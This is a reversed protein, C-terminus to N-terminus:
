LKVGKWKKIKSTAPVIGAVGRHYIYIEDGNPNKVIIKGKRHELILGADQLSKIFAKVAKGNHSNVSV